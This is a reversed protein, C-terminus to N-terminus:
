ASLDHGPLLRWEHNLLVPGTGPMPMQGSGFFDGQIVEFEVAEQVWDAIQGGVTAFLTLSYRGQQLPLHPIICEFTGVPPVQEFQLGRFKTGLHSLAENHTGRIGIAVDVYRLPLYGASEYAIQIRLNDGCRIAPSPQAADGSFCRCAVFRLAQNGQRDSREALSVSILRRVIHLYQQIVERTDGSAAIRGEHLLICSRCLNSITAMNHSVFIVTRGSRAISDMKGLCRRQFEIDGVALVEDVLMIEPELHAAVAFGLRVRMGSSYRKVPTDLFKGIGSFEVIKDFKKEIESRSMGHIAGNLYINERGTLEPHFGTGVELLSSVRGRLIARGSTPETIRSLIKLLTSKGAGNKGILGLVEGEGVKFSVERLAWIENGEVNSNRTLSATAAGPRGGIRGMMQEPDRGRLKHWFHELEERFTRAGITGLRYRKSLSEVEIAYGSM